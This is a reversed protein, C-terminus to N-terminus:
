YKTGCLSWYVGLFESKAREPQWPDIRVGLPGGHLNWPRPPDAMLQDREDFLIRNDVKKVEEPWPYPLSFRKAIAREVDIEISKYNQLFPKVPRIIDAIYAESADHLLGTLRLSQPCHRSVIVSHQAVSYFSLTHGGYRCMNSLAHAIDEICIDDPDPDLPWFQRGTATQMWDGARQREKLEFSDVDIRTTDDTM